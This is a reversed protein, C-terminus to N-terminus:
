FGFLGQPLAVNLLRYFGIYIGVAMGVAVIATLWHRREGLYYFLFALFLTTSVLYGLPIFALVYIISAIVLAGLVGLNGVDAEPGGQLVARLMILIGLLALAAGVGFPFTRPGLMDSMMLPVFIDQAGYICIGGILILGLAAWFDVTRVISRTM